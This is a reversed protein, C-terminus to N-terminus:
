AANPRHLCRLAACFIYAQIMAILLELVLIGSVFLYSGGAIFWRGLALDGFFFIFGLLSFILLHGATMNAFLRMALAFPKVVKGLIEVPTMLAMM